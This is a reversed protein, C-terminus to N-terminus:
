HVRAGTANYLVGNKLIYLQNDKIFKKVKVNNAAAKEIATTVEPTKERELIIFRETVTTNPEVNFTYELGDYIGILETTEVDFLLLDHESRMHSFSMSYTTEEGARVGIHTGVMNNTADVALQNDEEVAFINFEGSEMKPADYGAEYAKNYSESELMYLNDRWGNASLSICLSGLSSADVAKKPM